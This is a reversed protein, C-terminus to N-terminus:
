AGKFSEMLENDAQIIRYIEWAAIDGDMLMEPLFSKVEAVCQLLSDSTLTKTEM